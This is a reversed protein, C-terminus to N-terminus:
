IRLGLQKKFIKIFYEDVIEELVEHFMQEENALINVVFMVVKMTNGEGRLGRGSVRKEM